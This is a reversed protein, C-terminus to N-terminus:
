RLWLGRNLGSFQFWWEPYFGTGRFCGRQYFVCLRANVLSQKHYMKNIDVPTLLPRQDSNFWVSSAGSELRCCVPHPFVENADTLTDGDLRVGNQKILRRGQSNSEALGANVMVELVTQGAVLSYEPMEDPISKKQFLSVFAQQAAGTEEQSYFQSVIEFALKMKADRPHLRGDRIEKEWADIEPPTWTTTLRAFSPMAMDPISMLKGYMDEATTSIPIHNGLSKSMKVVGDTGPLIGLIIAINPKEGLYTMLKRGATVINFLQDTGGVQVDTRLAYADYGQM